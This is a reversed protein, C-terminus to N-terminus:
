KIALELKAIEADLVDREAAARAREDADKAMVREAESLARKAEVARDAAWRVASSTSACREAALDRKQKLLRLEDAAKKRAERAANEAAIAAEDGDRYPRVYPGRHGEVLRRCYQCLLVRHHHYPAGEHLRAGDWGHWDGTGTLRFGVSAMRAITTVSRPRLHDADECITVKGGPRWPGWGNLAAIDSAVEAQRTNLITRAIKEAEVLATVGWASTAHVVGAVDIQRGFVVELSMDGVGARAVTAGIDWVLRPKDGDKTSM